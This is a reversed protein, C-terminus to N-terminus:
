SRPQANASGLWVKWSSYQGQRSEEEGVLGHGLGKNLDLTKPRSNEAFPQPKMEKVWRGM